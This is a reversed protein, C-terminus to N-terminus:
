SCADENDDDLREVKVNVAKAHSLHSNQAGGERVLKEEAQRKPAGARVEGDGSEVIVDDAM